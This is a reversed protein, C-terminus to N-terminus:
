PLYLRLKIRLSEPLEPIFYPFYEDRVQGLKVLYDGSPTSVEITDKRYDLGIRVRCEFDGLVFHKWEHVIHPNAEWAHTWLDQALDDSIM